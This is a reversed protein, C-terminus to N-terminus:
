RRRYAAGAAVALYDIALLEEHVLAVTEEGRYFGSVRARRRSDM